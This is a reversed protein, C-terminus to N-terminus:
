LVWFGLLVFSDIKEGVKDLKMFVAGLECISVKTTEGDCVKACAM